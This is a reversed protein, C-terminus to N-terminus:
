LCDDKFVAKCEALSQKDISIMGHYRRKKQRNGGYGGREGRDHRDGRSYDAMSHQTTNRQTTIRARYQHFPPVRRPHHISPHGLQIHHEFVFSRIFANTSPHIAQTPTCPAPRTVQKTQNGLTTTDHSMVRPHPAMVRRETANDREIPRGQDM